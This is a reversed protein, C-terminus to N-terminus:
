KKMQQHVTANGDYFDIKGYAGNIIQMQPPIHGIDADYIVPICLTGLGGQLADALAFDRADSYGDPRGFLVGSCYKFWGCERMQWLSRYIDAANMEASELTWVFGDSKYKELFMEVPAFRTGLLKCLVDLCGGIMRGEFKHHNKGDLAKWETKETLEYAFKASDDWSAYKGCCDSNRQAISPNSMAEFAALDSEHIAAYGMNMFNSGHVTAIDCCLTVAFTLTSIDSYGCIWKPPLEALQSFDLYPLMDMLFEGGHPPIIAAVKPNEYLAAFEEARTKADASVCKVSRRVSATEITEYGLGRVNSLAKDLRPLKSERVGASPACVGITDGSQLLKAYKM